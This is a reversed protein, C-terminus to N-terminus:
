NAYLKGTRLLNNIGMLVDLTSLGLIDFKVLGIKEAGKKDFAVIPMGTKQDYFLPAIDGIKENSIIIGAAHKGYNKYSGELDIAIQFYKAYDGELGNETLRCYSKFMDQDNVLCWHIISDEDQEELEDAIEAEDPMKKTIENATDFDCAEYVRLVEKLASKGKLASFTAIQCVYEEGYKNKIYEIVDERRNAPFDTDIDPLSSTDKSLRSENIFRSFTLKNEIPEIETIDLLYCALSGSSSNHVAM